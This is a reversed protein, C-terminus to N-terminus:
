MTDTADDRKVQRKAAIWPGLIVGLGAGIGGSWASSDIELAKFLLACLVTFTVSCIATWILTQQM